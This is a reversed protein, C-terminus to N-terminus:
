ELALVPLRARERLLRGVCARRAQEYADRPMRERFPALEVDAEAELQELTAGDCRDRVAGLLAADLERLRNV